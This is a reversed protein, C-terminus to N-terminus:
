KVNELWTLEKKRVNFLYVHKCTGKAYSFGGFGGIIIMIPDNNVNRVIEASICTLKNDNHRRWKKFNTCKILSRDVNKTYGKINVLNGFKDFIINIKVIIFSDLFDSIGSGCLVLKFSIHKM